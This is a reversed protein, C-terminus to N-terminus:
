TAAPADVVMWGRDDRLGYADLPWRAPAIGRCSKVPHVHLASLEVNAAGLERARRAAASGARRQADPGCADSRPASRRRVRPGPAALRKRYDEVTVGPGKLGAVSRM